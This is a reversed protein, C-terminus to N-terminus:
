VGAFMKWFLRSPAGLYLFFAALLCPFVVFLVKMAKSMRKLSGLYKSTVQIPIEKKDFAHESVRTGNVSLLMLNNLVAVKIRDKDLQSVLHPEAFYLQIIMRDEKVSLVKWDKIIQEEQKKSLVESELSITFARTTANSYVSLDETLNMLQHSFLLTLEGLQNVDEIKFTLEGPSYEVEFGLM